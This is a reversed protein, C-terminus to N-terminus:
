KKIIKVLVDGFETRKYQREKKEMIEPSDIMITGGDQIVNSKRIEEIVLGLSILRQLTDTNRDKETRYTDSLCLAEYDGPLFRDVIEAYKTLEFWDIERDLYALYLQALMQPKKLGIYREILILLYELEQERYSENEIFKIYHRDKDEQSYRGSNIANIFSCLKELCHKHYVKNGISYFEFATGVFPIGKLIGADMSLDAVFEIVDIALSDRFSIFLNNKTM